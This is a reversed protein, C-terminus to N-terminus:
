AILVRFPSVPTKVAAEPGESKNWTSVKYLLLLLLKTYEALKEKMHFTKDLHFVFFMSQRNRKMKQLTSNNYNLVTVQILEWKIKQKANM